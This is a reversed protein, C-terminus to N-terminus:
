KDPKKLVVVIAFGTVEQAGGTEKLINQFFKARSINLRVSQNIIRNLAVNHSASQPTTGSFDLAIMPTTVSQNTTDSSWRATIPQRAEFIVSRHNGRNICRAHYLPEISITQWNICQDLSAQGRIEKGVKTNNPDINDMQLIKLYGLQVSHLVM